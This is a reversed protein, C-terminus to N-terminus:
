QPPFCANDDGITYAPTTAITTGGPTTFTVAAENSYASKGPSLVFNDVVARIGLAENRQVYQLFGALTAASTSAGGAEHVLVWKSDSWAYLSLTDGRRTIRLRGAADATEVGASSGAGNRNIVGSYYNKGGSIAREVYANNAGGAATPFNVQFRGYVHYNPSAILGDPLNYDIQMDFDGNVLAPNKLTLRLSNYKGALGGGPSATFLTVNGGSAAITETGNIDAINVPATTIDLATAGANDTVIGRQEWIAPEIGNSFDGFNNNSFSRVRYKYRKLPEVGITDTFTTENAKTSGWKLWEGDWVQREVEFGDEGANVDASWDLRVKMSNEAVATLNYPRAAGTTVCIVPSYASNWEGDCPQPKYARVRYCYGTAPALAADDFSNGNAPTVGIQSASVCAADACREVKFGAEDKTNDNWALSVGTDSAAAGPGSPAVPVPATMQATNSVFALPWAGDFVYCASGAPAGIVVTPETAAYKRVRVWDWDTAYAENLRDVHFPTDVLRGLMISNGNIPNSASRSLDGVQWFPVGTDWNDVQLNAVLPEKVRISYLMNAAPVPLSPSDGQWGYSVLGRANVMGVYNYLDSPLTLGGVLQGSPAMLTTKAKIELTTGAAFTKLSTLKGTSNTGHLYGDAQSFGSSDNIVWKGTDIVASRPVALLKQAADSAVATQVIQAKPLSEVASGCTLMKSGYYPNSAEGNPQLWDAKAMPCRFVSIAPSDSPIRAAKGLEIMAQSVEKFAERLGALDKGMTGHVAM